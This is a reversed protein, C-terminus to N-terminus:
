KIKKWGNYENEGDAEMVAITFNWEAYSSNLIEQNCKHLETENIPTQARLREAKESYYEFESKYDIDETDLHVAAEDFSGGATFEVFCGETEENYYLATIKVSKDLDDELLREIEGSVGRNGSFIFIMILTLVVLGFAVFIWKRNKINFKKEKTLVDKYPVPSKTASAQGFDSQDNNNNTNSGIVAVSKGCNQCFKAIDAIQKGCHRCYM